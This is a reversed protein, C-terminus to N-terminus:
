LKKFQFIDFTPGGNECHCATTSIMSNILYTQFSFSHLENRQSFLLIKVNFDLGSSNM